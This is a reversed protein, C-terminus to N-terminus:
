ALLKSLGETYGVFKALRKKKLNERLIWNIDADGWSACQTMLAFGREPAAATVVSVAYGLAQRLVRFDERKRDSGPTSHVRELVVHQVALAAHVVDSSHLLGPEAFAAIAARQQFYKGQTAIITLYSITERTANMLLRQFATAVGERVRWCTSCAYQALLEFVESRWKSQVAACAGYAVVGCLVVFEAPTNTVVKHREDSILYDLLARVKDPQEKALAALLYSLENVLELNARTGPLRSQERLYFELPRLNGALSREVLASLTSHTSHM